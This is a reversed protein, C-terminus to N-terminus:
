LRVASLTAQKPVFAVPCKGVFVKGELSLKAQSVPTLETM